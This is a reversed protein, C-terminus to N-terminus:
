IQTFTFQPNYGNRKCPHPNSLFLWIPTTLAHMTLTRRFLIVAVSLNIAPNVESVIGYIITM